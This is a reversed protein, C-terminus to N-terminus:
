RTPRALHEADAVCGRQLAPRATASLCLAARGPEHSSFPRVSASPKTMLVHRPRILSSHKLWMRRQVTNVGHQPRTVHTISTISLSGLQGKPSRQHLPLPGSSPTAEHPLLVTPKLNPHKLSASCVRQPQGPMFPPQIRRLVVATLV